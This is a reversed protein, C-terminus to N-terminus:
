WGWHVGGGWGGPSRWGGYPYLPYPSWVPSPCVRPRAREAALEADFRAQLAAQRSDADIRLATERAAILADLVAPPVGRAHLELLAAAGPLLRAGDERWRRVVAEANAGSRVLAVIEDLSLPGVVAPPLPSPLLSPPLPLPASAGAAATPMPLAGSPLRDPRYAAFAAAGLRM